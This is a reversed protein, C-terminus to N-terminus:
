TRLYAKSDHDFRIIGDDLLGKVLLNMSSHARNHESVGPDIGIVIM